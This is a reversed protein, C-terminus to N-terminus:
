LKFAGKLEAHPNFEFDDMDAFVAERSIALFGAGDVIWSIM